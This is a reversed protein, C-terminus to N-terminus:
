RISELFESLLRVATENGTPIPPVRGLALKEPILEKLRHVDEYRYGLAAANREAEAHGRPPIAIVPTGAALAENVTGKGATTIVLDAALVYDQLNPLFGYTYVGSAADAKLKPGSVVVMSVDDMKLDHSAQVAERILFEGVATGGVTVLITKKRFVFDERLQERPASFARVIPGIHRVNPWAPAPEAALILNAKRAIRSAWFNAPGEVLRSLPDRAFDHRMADLILVTPIRHRIAERASALESDSLLFRYYDWDTESRLFRRAIRLYRGYHRYWRWVPGLVGDTTPWDPAPPMTLADFGNAVVLDLAPSGALFLFYLDRQRELLGRALAVARTAHGLGQSHVGFYGRLEEM